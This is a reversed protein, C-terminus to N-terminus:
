QSHNAKALRNAITESKQRSPDGEPLRAVECQARIFVARDADGNEELWDAFVLRPVDDEPNEVITRLFAERDSM